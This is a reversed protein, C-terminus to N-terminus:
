RPVLVVREGPRVLGLERRAVGEITAPDERLRRAEDTLRAREERLRDVEAELSATDARLRWLAVVGNDGIVANGILLSAVFAVALRVRRRGREDRERRPAPRPPLDVAPGHGAPAKAFAPPRGALNM